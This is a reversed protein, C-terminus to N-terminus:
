AVGQPYVRTEDCSFPLFSRYSRSPRYRGDRRWQRLLDRRAQATLGGRVGYQESAPFDLEDRLCQARVRCGRCWLAAIRQDDSDDSFFLEADVIGLRCRAGRRWDGELGKDLGLSCAFIVM